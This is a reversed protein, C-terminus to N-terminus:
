RRERDESGAVHHADVGRLDDTARRTGVLVRELGVVESRDLERVGVQRPQEARHGLVAAPLRHRPQHEDDDVDFRPVLLGLEGHAGACRVRHELHGVCAHQRVRAVRPRPGVHLHVARRRVRRALQERCRRGAPRVHPRPEHGRRVDFGLVRVERTDHGHVGGAALRAERRGGGGPEAERERPVAVTRNGQRHVVVPPEAGPGRAVELRERALEVRDLVDRVEPLPHDRDLGDRRAQLRGFRERVVALEERGRHAGHGGRQRSGARRPREVRAGVGVRLLVQPRPQLLEDVPDRDLRVGVFRQDPRREVSLPLRLDIVDVAVGLEALQHRRGVRARLAPDLFEVGVGVVADRRAHRRPDHLLVLFRQHGRRPVLEVLQELGVAADARRLHQGRRRFAEVRAHLRQVVRARKTEGRGRQRAHERGRTLRDRGRDVGRDDRRLHEVRGEHTEASRSGFPRTTTASSRTPAVRPRRAARRTPRPGGSATRKALANDVFARDRLHEFQVRVEHLVERGVEPDLRVLEEALDLAGASEDHLQGVLVEVAHRGDFDDVTRHALGHDLDVRPGRRRAVELLRHRERLAEHLLASEVHVRAHGLLEAGPHVDLADVRERGLQDLDHVLRDDLVAVVPGRRAHVERPWPEPHREVLLRQLREAVERERAARGVGFGLHEGAGVLEAGGCERLEPERRRRPRAVDDGLEVVVVALQYARVGVLRAALDRRHGGRERQRLERLERGLGHLGDDGRELRHGRVLAHQPPRVHDFGDAHPADLLARRQMGHHGRRLEGLREDLPQAGDVGVPHEAAHALQWGVRDDHELGVLPEDLREGDAGVVLHRALEHPAAEGGVQASRAERPEPRAHGADSGRGVDRREVAPLLCEAGVTGAPGVGGIEGDDHHLALQEAAVRRGDDGGLVAGPRGVRLAERREGVVPGDRGLHEAAEEVGVDGVDREVYRDVREERVVGVM